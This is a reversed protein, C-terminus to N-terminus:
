SYQYNQALANAVTNATNVGMQRAAGVGGLLLQQQTALNNRVGAAAMQRLLDAKKAGETYPTSAELLVRMNRAQVDAEREEATRAGAFVSFPNNVEAPSGGLVPVSGFQGMGGPVAGQTFNYVGPTQGSTLSQGAGIASGVANAAGGVLNTAPQAFGGALSTATPLAALAAGGMALRGLNTSTMLPSLTQAGPLGALKGGALSGQLRSALNGVKGSGAVLEGAGRIGGMSMKGGLFGLGGGMAAKGLNGEKLGPLAGMTATIFPLAQMAFRGAQLGAGLLQSWM